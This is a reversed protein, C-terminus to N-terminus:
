APCLPAIGLEAGAVVERMCYGKPHQRGVRRYNQLSCCALVILEAKERELEFRDKPWINEMHGSTDM